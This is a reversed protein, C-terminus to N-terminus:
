EKVYAPELFSLEMKVAQEFEEPHNRKMAEWRFDEKLLREALEEWKGEKRGDKGSDIEIDKKM